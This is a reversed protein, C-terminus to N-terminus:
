KRQGLASMNGVFMEGPPRLHKACCQSSPSPLLLRSSSVAKEEPSRPWNHQFKFPQGPHAVSGSVRTQTQLYQMGWRYRQWCSHIDSRAVWTQPQHVWWLHHGWWFTLGEYHPENTGTPHTGPNAPPHYTKLPTCKLPSPAHKGKQCM